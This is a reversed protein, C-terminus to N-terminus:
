GVWESRRLACRPPICQGHYQREDTNLNLLTNADMSGVTMELMSLSACYYITYYLNYRSVDSWHVIAKKIYTM